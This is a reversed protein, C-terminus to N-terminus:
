AVVIVVGGTNPISSRYDFTGPINFTHSYSSGVAISGSNFSDLVNDSVITVPFFAHNVWLVSDGVGITLPSPVFAFRNPGSIQITVQNEIPAPATAISYGTLAIFPIAILLLAILPSYDFGSKRQTM